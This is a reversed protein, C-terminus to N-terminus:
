SIGALTSFDKQSAESSESKCDSSWFPTTVMVAASRSRMALPANRGTKEGERLDAPRETDTCTGSRMRM